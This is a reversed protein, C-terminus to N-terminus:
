RRRFALRSRHEPRAHEAITSLGPLGETQKRLRVPNELIPVRYHRAAAEARQRLPQDERVPVLALVQAEAARFGQSYPLDLGFM